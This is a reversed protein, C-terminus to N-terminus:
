KIKGKFIVSNVGPIEYSENHKKEYHVLYEEYEEETLHLEECDKKKCWELWEEETFAGSDILGPTQQTNDIESFVKNRIEGITPMYESTKILRSIAEILYEASIDDFAKLMMEIAGDSLNRNYLESLQSIADFKKNSFVTM